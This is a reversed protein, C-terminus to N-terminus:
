CSKPNQAVKKLSYSRVVKRFVLVKKTVKPSNQVLILASYGRKKFYINHNLKISPKLKIKKQKQTHYHIIILKFCFFIFNLGLIFNFWLM